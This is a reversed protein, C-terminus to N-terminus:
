ELRVVRRSVELASGRVRLFYIGAAAIRGDSTRGDWALVHNGATLPMTGSEWVRRGRVDLVEM